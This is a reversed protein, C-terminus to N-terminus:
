QSIWPSREAEGVHIGYDLFQLIKSGYPGSSLTKSEALTNITKQM